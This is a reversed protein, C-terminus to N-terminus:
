KEKHIVEEIYVAPVEDICWVDNETKGFVFGDAHMKAAAIKVLVPTINGHWRDASLWAFEPVAHTHVAHRKMKKIAGSAMIKEVAEATTGHYLFEPPPLIEVEPEVWPISHGQCAKIRSMDEKFRYRGKNDTDVIERLLDMDLSYKGGANIGDILQATPVWGHKDMDLSAEEPHHRLLYCMRVSIKKMIDENRAM